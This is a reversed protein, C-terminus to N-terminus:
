RTAISLGKWHGRRVRCKNSNLDDDVNCGEEFHQKKM